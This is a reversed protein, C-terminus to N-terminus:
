TLWIVFIINPISPPNENDNYMNNVYIDITEDLTINKFLSDVGLWM